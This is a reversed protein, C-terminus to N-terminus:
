VTAPRASPVREGCRVRPAAGAAFLRLSAAPGEAAVDPAFGDRWVLAVRGEMAVPTASPEARRYAMTMEDPSGQAVATLTEGDATAARM